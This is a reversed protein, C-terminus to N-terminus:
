RDARQVTAEEVFVRSEDRSQSREPRRILVDADRQQSKDPPDKHPPLIHLRVTPENWDGGLETAPEETLLPKHCLGRFRSGPIAEGYM